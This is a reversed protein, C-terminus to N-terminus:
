SPRRKHDSLKTFLFMVSFSVINSEKIKKKAISVAFTKGQHKNEAVKQECFQLDNIFSLAGNLRSTGRSWNEFFFNHLPVTYKRYLYNEILNILYMFLVYLKKSEIKVAEFISNNYKRSITYHKRECPKLM